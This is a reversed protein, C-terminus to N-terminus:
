KQFVPTIVPDNAFLDCYRKYSTIDRCIVVVEDYFVRDRKIKEMCVDSDQMRLTVRDFNKQENIYSDTLRNLRSKVRFRADNERMVEPDTTGLKRAVDVLDWIRKNVAVLNDFENRVHPNVFLPMLLPELAEVERQIQLKKKPDLIEARKIHLISLKDMAEGVSVPVNIKTAVRWRLWQSPDSYETDSFFWGIHKTMYPKKDVHFLEVFIPKGLAWALAAPASQNGVFGRADAIYQTLTAFTPAHVGPVRDHYPFDEYESPDNYVFICDNHQTIYDWPFHPNHRKTSRHIVIKGRTPLEDQSRPVYMWPGSPNLFPIDYTVQLLDIWSNGNVRQRWMNLNMEPRVPMRDHSVVFKSIYPQACIVPSLDVYTETIEHAFLDGGYFSNDTIRLEGKKGTLTWRDHIVVLAHILDGLMGGCVYVDDDAM